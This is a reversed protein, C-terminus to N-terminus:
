DESLKQKSQLFSDYAEYVKKGAIGENNHSLFFRAAAQLSLYGLLKKAEVYDIDAADLPIDLTRIAEM